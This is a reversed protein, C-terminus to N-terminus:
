PHDYLKLVVPAAWGCGLEEPDGEEAVALEPEPEPMVGVGIAEWPEWLCEVQVEAAEVQELGQREAEAVEAAGLVPRAAHVEEAQALQQEQQLVAGEVWLVQRVVVGVARAQLKWLRDEVVVVGLLRQQEEAAAAEQVRAQLEGEEGEQVLHQPQEEAEEAAQHFHHGEVVVGLQRLLEM